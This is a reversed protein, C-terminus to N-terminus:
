GPQPSPRDSLVRGAIAGVLAFALGVFAALVGRARNSAKLRGEWDEAQATYADILRAEEPTPQFETRNYYGQGKFYSNGIRLARYGLPDAPEPPIPHLRDLVLRNVTEDTPLRDQLTSQLWPVLAVLAYSWGFLAFGAWAARDRRVILALTGVLLAVLFLLGAWRDSGEPAIKVLALGAALVAILAMLPALGLRWRPRDPRADPNTALELPM